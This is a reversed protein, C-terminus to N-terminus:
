PRVIGITAMKAIAAVRRAERWQSWCGDHLWTHSAGWGIPKLVADPTEKAGCHACRDSPTNPHTANLREVLLNDFAAREAELHSLGRLGMLAMVRTEFADRILPSLPELQSFEGDPLPEKIENRAFQTM